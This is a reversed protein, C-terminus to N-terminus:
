SKVKELARSGFWFSIIAAFITQTDQDWIVNIATDFTAGQDEMLVLLTSIKVTAFLAFFMYTIVPRVSKRLGGMIGRDNQMSMDHNILRAHEDASARAEFVKLESEVGLKMLEAQMELKRMELKMNEKRNLFDMISPVTSGAFGLLSGLLTGM